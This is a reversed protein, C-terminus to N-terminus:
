GVIRYKLLTWVAEVGDRWHIKKGQIVTRGRYSIPVECIGIKALALKATIEPCFEFRKCTLTVEDLISALFVKYGTAEDTLKLNYLYNTLHNIIQGGVYFLLGGHQMKGHSLMRSGYVVRTKGDIIPQLLKAYEVPNYELDADQVIIIEGTSLAFGRRLSAGKGENKPKLLLRIKVNDQRYKKQFSILKKTTGDNSGDDVVIIEKALNLTDAAVVQRLVKNITKVENYVPVVVSVTTFRMKM